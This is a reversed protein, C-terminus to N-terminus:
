INNDNNSNVLYDASFHLIDKSFFSNKQINIYNSGNIKKKDKITVTMPEFYAGYQILLIVDKKRLDALTIAGTVSECRNNSYRDLIRNKKDWVYIKRNKINSLALLEKPGGWASYHRIWECYEAGTLKSKDGQIHEFSGGMLEKKAIIKNDWNLGYKQPSKQYEVAVSNRLDQTAMRQGYQYIFSGFLCSGDHKITANKDREFILDKLNANRLAEIVDGEDSEDLLKNINEKIQKSMEEVDKISQQDTLNSKVEVLEEAIEVLAEVDMMMWGENIDKEIQELKLELLKDQEKPLESRKHQEGFVMKKIALPVQGIRGEEYEDMDGIDLIEEDDALTYLQKIFSEENLVEISEKNIGEIFPNADQETFFGYEESNSKLHNNIKSLLEKTDLKNIEDVSNISISKLVNIVNSSAKYAMIILDKVAIQRHITVDEGKINRVKRFGETKGIAITGKGNPHPIGAVDAVLEVRAKVLEKIGEKNLDKSSSNFLKRNNYLKTNVEKDLSSLSTKGLYNDRIKWTAGKKHKNKIEIKGNVREDGEEKAWPDVIVTEGGYEMTTFGHDGKPLYMRKVNMDKTISSSKLLSNAVDSFEGCKGSGLLISRETDNLKSWGNGMGAPYRILKALIFPIVNGNTINKQHNGAGNPLIKEQVRKEVRAALYGLNWGKTKFILDYVDTCKLENKEDNYEKLINEIWVRDKLGEYRRHKSLERKLLERLEKSKQGKGYTVNGIKIKRQVVGQKARGNGNTVAGKNRRVVGDRKLGLAKAGMLDAERELAANDNVAMGAIEITPKVRGKKQQVVHWAEHALHKEQGPALHINNGQTYAHANLAQPRKSNYHVRIDDLDMGSLHELGSKLSDPLGTRNARELRQEFETPPGKKVFLQPDVKKHGIYDNVEKLKLQTLEKMNLTSKTQGRRSIEGAKVMRQVAKNGVTQSLKFYYNEALRGNQKLLNIEGQSNAKRGKHEQKTEFM